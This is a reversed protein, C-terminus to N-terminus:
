SSWCYLAENAAQARRALAVLDTLLPLMADPPLDAGYSLEAIQGWEDALSPLQDDTIDALGDRTADDLRAVWPDDPAAQPGDPWVITMAVLGVAWPVDRAFALLQGLVVAPDINRTGIGDTVKRGDRRDLLPGGDTVEMLKEVTADDAARFYDYLVGM